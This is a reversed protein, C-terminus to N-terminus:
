EPPNSEGGSPDMSDLSFRRLRKKFAETVAEADRSDDIVYPIILVILETHVESQNDVRFLRGLVPIESLVPVGSYGRNVTTSILGGLLVSGGDKLGLSTEIKRTFISPSDIKSSSDPQTESAEQSIELDIRNGSHVVPKVNLLIGTKRYQIEQLIGSTGNQQLDPTTSQSTIIPVDTGVDITAEGGSKVLIRPTSLISVRRNAAFANLVARTQGANDLKYTLGSTGIGLGGMTGLVGNVDDLSIDNLIWAIGLDERGDLTIEAVTVEILVMRAPRDMERIVTLLGEWQDISGQFILGNRVDDVVLQGQNRIEGASEATGEGSRMGVLVRDLIRALEGARTNKVQYYHYGVKPGATQNPHDLSKAWEKIHELIAAQAAFALVANLDDVPLIIVSGMSPKLSASYGETNLVEVLLRALEDARLFVPEIRVSHRGRMYPQDLLHVAKLAEQVVEPKGKLLVANREPDESIEIDQGQFASRLWNAVHINRVTALPVLQFIPRHSVPVEPLTRGSVLLPTEGHYRGQGPVFRLLHGQEEVAVGYNALVQRALRDLRELAVPAETRLTVLDRKRLLRSDIEFSKELINGYVENIFTPLAMADFSVMVPPGASSSAQSEAPKGPSMPPSSPVRPTRSFRPGNSEISQKEHPLVPSRSSSESVPPRLPEGWQFRRIAREASEDPFRALCGTGFITLLLLCALVFLLGSNDPGGGRHSM